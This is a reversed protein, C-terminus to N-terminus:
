KRLLEFDGANLTRFEHVQPELAISIGRNIFAVENRWGKGLSKMLAPVYDSDGAVLVITAPGEQSWVTEVIEAILFADDQKSRNGSGLYGRRVTFGKAEAAKWFSDDDPIVGAIYASAVPCVNGETDRCVEALMQGFDIRFGKGKEHNTIGYFLNQDDVFVHVRRDILEAHAGARGTRFTEKDAKKASSRNKSPKKAANESAKKSYKSVM